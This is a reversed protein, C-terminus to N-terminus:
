LKTTVPVAGYKGQKTKLDNINGFKEHGAINPNKIAEFDTCPVAITNDGEVSYKRVGRSLRVRGRKHPSGVWRLFTPVCIPALVIEAGQICDKSFETATLYKSM